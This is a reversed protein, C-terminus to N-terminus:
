SCAYSFTRRLPGAPRDGSRPLARWEVLHIRLAVVSPRVRRAEALWAQCIAAQKAPALRRFGATILYFGQYPRPLDNFWLRREKGNPGVTDAVWMPHSEERVGSFLRFGTLPWLELRLAACVLFLALFGRILWRTRTPVSEVQGGVARSM